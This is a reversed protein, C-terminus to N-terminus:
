DAARAQGGLQCGHGRLLYLRPCLHRCCMTLPSDGLGVCIKGASRGSPLYDAVEPAFYKPTGRQGNDTLSTSLLSFDTSRDLDTLWMGDKSFLINSPKLDKHRVNQDHLYAVASAMCGLSNMLRGRTRVSSLTSEGDLLDLNTLNQLSEESFSSPSFHSTNLDDLLTALDCTAVPALLIGLFQRHTYTGVLEIVHRHRLKKLLDIEKKEGPGINKRCYKKKWAVLMGNPCRTEWVGGNVGHGLFRLEELPVKEDARYDVHNGRGSWDTQPVVTQSIDIQSSKTAGADSFATIVTLQPRFTHNPLGPQPESDIELYKSPVIAIRGDEVRSVTWGRIDSSKQIFVETGALLTINDAASAFDHVVKGKVWAGWPGFSSSDALTSETSM